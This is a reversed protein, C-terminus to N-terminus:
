YTKKINYKPPVGGHQKQYRQIEEWERREASERTLAYSIVRKHTFDKFLRHTVERLDPNNSIGYYVIENSNKLEYLYTDRPKRMNVGKVVLYLQILQM